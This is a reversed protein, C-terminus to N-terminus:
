QSPGATVQKLARRVRADEPNAALAATWHSAAKEKRGMQLYGAGLLYHIEAKDATRPLLLEYHQVAERVRGSSMLLGALNRRATLYEPDLVVARRYHYRARVPDGGAEFLAGLNNHARAHGPDIALVQRYYEAAKKKRGQRTLALAMNYNMNLHDPKLLLGKAFTGVAADIKGSAAQAQGLYNYAEYNNNTVQLMHRSLTESNKWYGTQRWSLAGLIVLGIGGLLPLWWRRYPLFRTWDNGGWVVAVWFGVMALYAYHDAMAQTGIQAIGAFPFIMGAFWLWGTIVYPYRNRWWLGLGTIGALLLLLGGIKWPDFAAPYPYFVALDLPFLLKKLYGGYSLVANFLRAVFPYQYVAPLEHSGIVTLGGGLMVLFFFYKEWVLRLGTKLPRSAPRVGDGFQQGTDPSNETLRGFPWFDILLFVFPLCVFMPFCFVSFWYCIGALVYYGTRRTRVYLVYAYFALLAPFAAFVVRIAALWAVAEVNLPHLAFIAAVLGSKWRADTMRHLGLFLLVANLGHLFAAFLHWAGYDTGFMVREAGVLLYTFPMWVGCVNYNLGYVFNDWSFVEKEFLALETIYYDDCNVPGHHGTQWYVVGVAGLLVLCIFLKAFREPM